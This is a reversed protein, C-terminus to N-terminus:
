MEGGVIQSTISIQSGSEVTDESNANTGDKLVVLTQKPDGSETFVRDRLAPYETVLTDLVDQVTPNDGLTISLHKKGVPKRLPPYIRLNVTTTM